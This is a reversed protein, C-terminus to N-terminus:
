SIIKNIEHDEPEEFISAFKMALGEDVYYASVKGAKVLSNRESIRKKWLEDSIRLYHLECEINQSDYFEKAYKREAKTWLGWDLIVNMGARVIQVSKEFFYKEAREVYVDHMEGTENRFLALTLEDVSLIVANLESCLKAAYTSKGSCIKGCTMIVKAM